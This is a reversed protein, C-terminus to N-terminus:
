RVRDRFSQEFIVEAATQAPIVKTAQFGEHPSPAVHDKSTEALKVSSRTFYKLNYFVPSIDTIIQCNFYSPEVKVSSM